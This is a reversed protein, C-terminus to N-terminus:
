LAHKFRGSRVGVLWVLASLLGAIGTVKFLRRWRNPMQQLIDFQEVYITECAGNDTDGRSISTKRMHDEVAAWRAMGLCGAM